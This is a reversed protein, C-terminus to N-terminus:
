MRFSCFLLKRHNIFALKVTFVHVRDDQFPGPIALKYFTEEKVPSKFNEVTKTLIWSFIIELSGGSMTQGLFYYKINQLCILLNSM